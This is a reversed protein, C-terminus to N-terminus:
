DKTVGRPILIHHDPSWYFDRYHKEDLRNQEEDLNVQPGGEIHGQYEHGIDHTQRDRIPYGCGPLSCVKPFAEAQPELCKICIRGEKMRQFDEPSVTWNM